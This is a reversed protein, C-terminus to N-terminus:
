PEGRKETGREKEQAKKWAEVQRRQWRSLAGSLTSDPQTWVRSGATLIVEVRIREILERYRVEGNAERFTEILQEARHLYREVSDAKIGMEAAIDVVEWEEIRRLYWARLQRAPLIAGAVELLTPM